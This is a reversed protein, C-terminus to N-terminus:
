PVTVGNPLGNAGDAWEPKRQIAYNVAHEIDSATRHLRWTQQVQWHYFGITRRPPPAECILVSYMDFDYRLSFRDGVNHGVGHKLGIVSLMRAQADTVDFGPMDVIGTQGPVNTVPDLRFCNGASGTPVDRGFQGYTQQHHTNDTWNEGNMIEQFGAGNNRDLYLKLNAWQEWCIRTCNPIDQAWMVIGLDNEGRDRPPPLTGGEVTGGNQPTTPRTRTVNDPANLSRGGAAVTPLTGSFRYAEGTLARAREACGNTDQVGLVRFRVNMSNAPNIKNGTQFRATGQQATTRVTETNGNQELTIELERACPDLGSLEVTDHNCGALLLLVPFLFLIELFVSRGASVHGLRM